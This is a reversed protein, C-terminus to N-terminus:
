EKIPKGWMKIKLGTKQNFDIGTYKTYKDNWTFTVIAESSPFTIRIQRPGVLKWRIRQDDSFNIKLEGDPKFIVWSTEDADHRWSWKLSLIKNLFEKQEADRQGMGAEIQDIIAEVKNASDLKSREMYSTKLKELNKLYIKDIKNVAKDRQEILRQLEAPNQEEGSVQTALSCFTAILLTYYINM